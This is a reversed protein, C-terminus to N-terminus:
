GQEAQRQAILAQLKKKITTGATHQEVGDYHERTLVRRIETLSTCEGTQALEIAREITSPRGNQISM